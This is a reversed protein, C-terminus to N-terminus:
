GRSDGQWREEFTRILGALHENGSRAMAEDVAKAARDLWATEGATGVPFTDLIDPNGGSHVFREGLATIRQSVWRPAELLSRGLIRSGERFAALAPGLSVESPKVVLCQRLLAAQDPTVQGGVHLKACYHDFLTASYFTMAMEEASRGAALLALFKRGAFKAILAAAAVLGVKALPGGKAEALVAAAAPPLDVQRGGALKAYLGARVRAALMDDVLPVPMFGRLASALLARRVILGRHQALHALAEADFAIVPEAGVLIVHSDRSM